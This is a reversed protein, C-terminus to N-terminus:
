FKEVSIQFWDELLPAKEELDSGWLYQSDYTKTTIEYSVSVYCM